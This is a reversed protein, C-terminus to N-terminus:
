NARTSNQGSRAGHLLPGAFRLAALYVRQRRGVSLWTAPLRGRHAPPLWDRLRADTPRRYGLYRHRACLAGGGAEGDEPSDDRIVVEILTVQGVNQEGTLNGKLVNGNFVETQTQAHHANVFTGGVKVFDGVQMEVRGGLLSTNNSTESGGTNSIRSLLM